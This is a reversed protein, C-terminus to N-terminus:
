DMMVLENLDEEEIPLMRPVKWVVERLLNLHAFRKRNVWRGEKKVDELDMGRLEWWRAKMAVRMEHTLATDTGEEGTMDCRTLCEFAMPDKLLFSVESSVFDEKRDDEHKDERELALLNEYHEKKRCIERYGDETVFWDMMLRVTKNRKGMWCDAQDLMSECEM